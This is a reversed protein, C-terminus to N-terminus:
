LTIATVGVTVILAARASVTWARADANKSCRWTMMAWTCLLLLKFSDLVDSGLDSTLRLHDSAIYLGLYILQALAGWVWWAIWLREEGGIAKRL